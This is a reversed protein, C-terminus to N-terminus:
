LYLRPVNITANRMPLADHNKVEASTIPNEFMMNAIIPSRVGDRLCAHHLCGDTIRKRAIVASMANRGCTDATVCMTDNVRPHMADPASLINCLM